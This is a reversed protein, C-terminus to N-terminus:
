DGLVRRTWYEFERYHSTSVETEDMLFSSVTIRRPVNDWAFTVDQDTLGMTFTGGEIPVLGPGIEMDGHTGKEFGGWEQDNYKWGTVSSRESKKCATFGFILLASTGILLFRKM